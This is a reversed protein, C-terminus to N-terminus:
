PISLFSLVFLAVAIFSLSNEDYGLYFFLAASLAVCVNHFTM